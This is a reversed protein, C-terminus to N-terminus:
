THGVCYDSGKEPECDSTHPTGDKDLGYDGALGRDILEAIATSRSWRRAERYADLRPLLSPAIHVSIQRTRNERMHVLM